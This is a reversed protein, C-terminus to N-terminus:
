AMVMMGRTRIYGAWRAHLIVAVWLVLLLAGNEKPDWGWFRGWSQDAWIGGLVTGVFSFLLAFCLTGYTMQALARSGDKTLRGSLAAMIWGIALAGALFTASYGITITVVHTSLWFNSDLVARMMEMTDGSMALHHAIVLTCFGVASGVAAAIGRRHAAELGLALLVAGWGVFVASSYLNTVPPRGQIVMRGLVGGTHALFGAALLWFAAKRLREPWALWSLCALLFSGVYLAMGQTFPAAKNFLRERRAWLAERPRQAALRAALGATGEAFAARDGARWADLVSAYDLLTPPLPKGATLAGSLSAGTTTWGADSAGAEPPLPRFEAAQDLGQWREAFSLVRELAARGPGKAAGAGHARVEGAGAALAARYAALEDSFGRSDAPAFTNELRQYLMVQDALSLVAREFRTREASEVGAARQAQAQLDALKPAIVSFPFYRESGGRQDLLGLVDPDDIRFVRVRDADQPRAAMDLLWEEPTLARGDLSVSQKGRLELLAARAVTDLPKVRGQELAPLDGFRTLADDA